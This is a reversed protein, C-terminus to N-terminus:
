LPWFFSSRLNGQMQRKRELKALIPSSVIDYVRHLCRFSLLSSSLSLFPSLPLSLFFFLICIGDRKREEERRGWYSFVVFPQNNTASLARVHGRGASFFPSPLAHVERRIYIQIDIGMSDSRLTRCFDGKVTSLTAIQINEYPTVLRPIDKSPNVCAKRVREGRKEERREKRRKRKKKKKKKRNTYKALQMTGALFVWCGAVLGPAM